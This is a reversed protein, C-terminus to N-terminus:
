DLKEPNHRNKEIEAVMKEDKADFEKEIDDLHKTKEGIAEMIEKQFKEPTM